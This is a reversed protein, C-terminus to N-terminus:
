KLRIVFYERGKEAGWQPNGNAIVIGKIGKVMNRSEDDSRPYGLSFHAADWGEITKGHFFDFNGTEICKSIRKKWDVPCDKMIRKAWFHTIERYEEPKEGSEIMRYWKEKLPFHLIKM